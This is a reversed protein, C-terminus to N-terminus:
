IGEALESIAAETHQNPTRHAPLTKPDIECRENCLAAGVAHTFSDRAWFALPHGGIYEYERVQALASV